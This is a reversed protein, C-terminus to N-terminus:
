GPLTERAEISVAEIAPRKGTRLTTSMERLYMPVLTDARVRQEVSLSLDSLLSAIVLILADAQRETIAALREDINLRAWTTLFKEVRELAREYVTVESRLQEGAKSDYRWNSHQLEALREGVFQQFARAEASVKAIEELPNDIPHVLGEARLFELTRAQEEEAQIRAIHKKVNPLQGGHYRCPGVGPHDTRFGARLKCPSGTKAKAGCLPLNGVPMTISKHLTEPPYGEGGGMFVQLPYGEGWPPPTPILCTNRQGKANAFGM